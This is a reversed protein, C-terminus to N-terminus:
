TPSVPHAGSKSRGEGGGMPHDVPNMAVARNRPKRGLWRRRGAKGYVVNEHDTNGLQGITARCEVRVNRLEGSPMKLAAKKGEKGMIQVFSGASKAIQGGKGATFEVNHIITGVPIKEIPLVNGPKIDAAASSILKDGTKVGIPALIYRREGDAYKLLAIRASRNPDYEITEVTAPVEYKDRKFDIIRYTRKHGGGRFRSTIRGNNNRGGSKTLKGTLSKHPKQATIDEKKDVTMTRRSPTYPRFEKISM